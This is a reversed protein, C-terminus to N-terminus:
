RYDGAESSPNKHLKERERRIKRRRTRFVMDRRLFPFFGVGILLTAVGQLFIVLPAGMVEAAGGIILGGVPQMGFFAMAYYSIVRGRMLPAVTTQILTNSLTTQAMMGFGSLTIFIWAIWLSELYAFGMLGVAFILTCRFLVKKLNTGPKMSALFLAGSVAGLGVLSKLIGFTSADGGYIEGAYVPLLPIFPLALLSIAALMLMVNRIGPTTRLYYFGETFDAAVSTTRQRPVYRPLKMLLLSIIVALFSLANSLFCVEAGFTALVIGSLAPGILRAVNVM